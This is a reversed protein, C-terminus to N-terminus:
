FRTASSAPPPPRRTQDLELCRSIAQEFEVSLEPCHARVPEFRFPSDGPNVGTLMQHLNAALAYIDSRADSQGIGGYQEPAAYGPTGLAQTDQSSNKTFYRAIGFDVLRVDGNEKVMINAPKLDRFIIPPDQNHLYDLVSALKLGVELAHKVPLRNHNSLVRALTQGEIYDMVIYHRQNEVFADVIRPLNPHRLGSLVKLESGLQHRIQEENFVPNSSWLEKLAWVQPTRM